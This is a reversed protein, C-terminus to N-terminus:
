FIFLFPFGEGGRAPSFEAWAAAVGGRAGAVGGREAWKQGVEARAAAGRERERESVLRGWGGAAIERV